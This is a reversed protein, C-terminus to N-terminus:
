RSTAKTQNSITLINLLKDSKELSKELLLENIFLDSNGAAKIDAGTFCLDQALHEPRESANQCLNSCGIEVM